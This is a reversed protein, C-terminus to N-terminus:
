HVRSQGLHRWGVTRREPDASARSSPDLRHKNVRFLVSLLRQRVRDINRMMNRSALQASLHSLRCAVPSVGTTDARPSCLCVGLQAVISGGRRFDRRTRGGGCSVAAPSARFPPLRVVEQAPHSTPNYASKALFSGVGPRIRSHMPPVAMWPPPIWARRGQRAEVAPISARLVLAASPRDSSQTDLAPPQRRPLLYAKSAVPRTAPQNGM